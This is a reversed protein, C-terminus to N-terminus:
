GYWPAVDLTCVIETEPPDYESTAPEDIWLGPRFGLKELLRLSARNRHDPSALFRPADPYAVRLRERLFRGVMRTGIGRGVLDPDGILYDFAAAEPDGTKAAYDENDGVRYDQMMGADRGGIVVVWMRIPVEGDIRPGYRRKAEAMDMRGAHFWRRAHPAHQWEVYTPLDDHTMPRFAIDVEPIPDVRAIQAAAERTRVRGAAETAPVWARRDAATAPGAPTNRPVTLGWLAWRGSLDVPWPTAEIGAREALVRVAGAFVPEGPERRGSPASWVRDGSESPEDHAGRLLLYEWGSDAPRRVVVTSGIPLDDTM